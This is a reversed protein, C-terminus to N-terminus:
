SSPSSHVALTAIADDAHFRNVITAAPLLVSGGHNLCPFASESRPVFPEINRARNVSNRARRDFAERMFSSGHASMARSKWRFRVPRPPHITPVPPSGTSGLGTRLASRKLRNNVFRHSSPSLKKGRREPPFKPPFPFVIILSLMHPSPFLNFTVFISLFVYIVSTILIEVWVQYSIGFIISTNREVKEEEDRLFLSPWAVIKSAIERISLVSDEERLIILNFINKEEGRKREGFWFWGYQQRYDRVPRIYLAFVLRDANLRTEHIYVLRKRCTDYLTSSESTKKWRASRYHWQLCGTHARNINIAPAPEPSRHPNGRQGHTLAEQAKGRM